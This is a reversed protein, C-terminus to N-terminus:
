KEQTVYSGGRQLREKQLDQYVRTRVGEVPHALAVMRSSTASLHRTVELSCAHELGHQAKESLRSTEARRWTIYRSGPQMKVTASPYGGHLFSVEGFMGHSRELHVGADLIIVGTGEQLLVLTENPHDKSIVEVEKSALEEQGLALLRQFDAPSMSGAFLRRYMDEEKPSLAVFRESLIKVVYFANILTYFANWRLPLWLVKGVPHYYNYLCALSCSSAALLRLNLESPSAFSLGTLIFAAHGPWQPRASPWLKHPLQISTRHQPAAHSCMRRVLLRAPRMMM